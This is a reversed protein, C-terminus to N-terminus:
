HVGFPVRVMVCVSCTRRITSGQSRAPGSTGTEHQTDMRPSDRMRKLWAHTGKVRCNNNTKRVRGHGNGGIPDSAAQGGGAVFVSWLGVRLGCYWKVVAAVDPAEEPALGVRLREVRPPVGDGEEDPAPVSTSNKIEHLIPRGSLCSGREGRGAHMHGM